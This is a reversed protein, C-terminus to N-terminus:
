EPIVRMIGPERKAGALETVQGRERTRDSQRHNRKKDTIFAHVTEDIWHRNGEVLGNWDRHNAQPDVQQTSKKQTVVMGTVLPVSMMVRRVIVVVSM